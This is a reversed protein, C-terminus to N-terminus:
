LIMLRSLIVQRKRINIEEIAQNGAHSLPSDSFSLFKLLTPAIEAVQVVECGQGTKIHTTGYQIRLKSADLFNFKWLWVVVENPFSQNRPIQHLKIHVIM